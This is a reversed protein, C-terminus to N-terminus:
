DGPKPKTRLDVHDARIHVNVPKLPQKRKSNVDIDINALKSLAHKSDHPLAKMKKRRERMLNAMYERRDEESRIKNYKAFNVIQWGWSRDPSLRAIRRGDLDPSRSETDAQELATIGINIIELPITTRRSIAEATMDVIGASDALVIFQQFTVMAQWPGRTALSGDFMSIFVKGYM